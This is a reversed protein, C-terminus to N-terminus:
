KPLMAALADFDFAELAGDRIGRVSPAMKEPYGRMAVTVVFVQPATRPLRQDYYKGNLTVLYQGHRCQPPRCNEDIVPSVFKWDRSELINFHTSTGAPITAPERLQEQTFGVRIADLRERMRAFHATAAAAATERAQADSRADALVRRIRAQKASESINYGEIEKIRRKIAAEQEERPRVKVTSAARATEKAENKALESALYDLFEGRTVYTFPLRGPRAVLVSREYAARDRLDTSAPMFLRHGRFEGLDSNLAYVRRNGIVAGTNDLINFLSNVSISIGGDADTWRRRVIGEPCAFGFIMAEVELPCPQDELTLRGPGPSGVARGWGVQLGKPRGIEEIKLILDMLRSSHGLITAVQARPIKWDEAGATDVRRNQVIGTIERESGGSCKEEAFVPAAGELLALLVASFVPTTVANRLISKM